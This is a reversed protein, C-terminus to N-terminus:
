LRPGPMGEPQERRVPQVPQWARWILAIVGVPEHAGISEVCTQPLLCRCARRRQQLLRLEEADLELVLGVANACAAPIPGCPRDHDCRTLAIARVNGSDAQREM